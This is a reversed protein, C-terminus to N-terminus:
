TKGVNADGNLKLKTANGNLEKNDMLPSAIFLDSKLNGAVSRTHM